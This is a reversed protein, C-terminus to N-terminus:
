PASFAPATVPWDLKIIRLGKQNAYRVTYAAGGKSKTLYCVCVGSHDVLYRNRKQMCGTFYKESIYIAEDAQHLIQDYIKKDNESWNKEQDKCPLALILRIGPFIEKFKLVTLAAMTDFGLAGGALFTCVDQCILELIEKELLNQLMEKEQEPINRHGTFCCTQHKM